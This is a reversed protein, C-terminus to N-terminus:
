DIGHEAERRLQFRINPDPDQGVAQGDVVVANPSVKPAKQAFAPSAIITAVAVASLLTKM